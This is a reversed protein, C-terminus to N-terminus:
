QYVYEEGRVDLVTMETLSLRLLKWGDEEYMELVGIVEVWDNEEPWDGDWIVEFGANADFGCCGPGYRIVYYYTEGTEEWFFPIFIGEYKLTKGLYDEPNIYIDNTQAIFLKEKIEIVDGETVTMPPTDHIQLSPLAEENKSTNKQSLTDNDNVLNSPTSIKPSSCASLFLLCSLVIYVINKM